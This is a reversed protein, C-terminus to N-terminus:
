SRFSTAVLASSSRRPSRVSSTVLAAKAVPELDAILRPGADERAVDYLRLLEVRADDLDVLVHEGVSRLHSRIRLAHAGRERLRSALTVVSDRYHEHVGPAIRRM